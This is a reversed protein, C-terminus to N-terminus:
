SQFTVFSSSTNQSRSTACLLTAFISSSVVVEMDVSFLCEGRALCAYPLYIILPASDTFPLSPFISITFLVLCVHPMVCFPVTHSCNSFDRSTKTFRQSQSGSSHHQTSIHVYLNAAIIQFDLVKNNFNFDSNFRVAFNIQLLLYSPM